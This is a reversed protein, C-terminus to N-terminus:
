AIHDRNASSGYYHESSLDQNFDGAVVLGHDPHALRIQQWDTRQVELAAAFAQGNTAPFGRWSSGLWPLVTGYVVIRAGHPPAIRVAVSRVPDSTPSLPEAPFRSWITVWREGPESPRDFGETSSAKFDEGPIVVDHTETLVWIDADVRKLHEHIREQRRRNSLLPRQLNWTAIKM